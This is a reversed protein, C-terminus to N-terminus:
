VYEEFFGESFWENILYSRSMHGSLLCVAYERLRQVLSPSPFSREIIAGGTTQVNTIIQKLAEVFSLM